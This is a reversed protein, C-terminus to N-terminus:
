ASQELRTLVEDIKADERRILERAAEQLQALGKPNIGYNQPYHKPPYAEFRYYYTMDDDYSVLTRSLYDATNAEGVQLLEIFNATIWGLVGWNKVRDYILPAMASGSGFSVILFKSNPYLKMAEVLACLAPNHVCISGDLMTMYEETYPLRLKAPPFVTPAASTARAVQWMPFDLAPEKRADYSKFFYPSRTELHYAPVIVDTIAQSLMVDGFIAQLGTEVGEALYQPGLIGNLSRVIHSLPRRFLSYLGTQYLQVATTARHKPRKNDDPVVGGLALMAGTSTGAILDFLEAVNKGARNEMEELVMAPIIGYVGGGDLSLIRVVPKSTPNTMTNNQYVELEHTAIVFKLHRVQDGNIFTCYLGTQIALM